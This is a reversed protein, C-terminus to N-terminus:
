QNTNSKIGDDNFLHYDEQYAWKILFTVIQNHTISAGDYSPHYEIFKKKLDNDIINKNKKSIKITYQSNKTVM